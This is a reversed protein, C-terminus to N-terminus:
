LYDFYRAFWTAPYEPYARHLADSAGDYECSLVDELLPVYDLAALVKLVAEWDAAAILDMTETDDYRGPGEAGLLALGGFNSVRVFIAVGKATASAPVVLQGLFSADQVQSGAESQCTCGFRREFEAM